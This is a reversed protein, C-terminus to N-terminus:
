IMGLALRLRPPRSEVLLPPRPARPRRRPGPRGIVAQAKVIWDDLAGPDRDDLTM